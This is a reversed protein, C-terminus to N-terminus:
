IKNEISQLQIYKSDIIKLIIRMNQRLGAANILNRGIFSESEIGTLVTPLSM